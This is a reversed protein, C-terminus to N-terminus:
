SYAVNPSNWCTTELKRHTTHTEVMNQWIQQKNGPVFVTIIGLRKKQPSLNKLVM